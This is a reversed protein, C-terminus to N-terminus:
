GETNAKVIEDAKEMINNRLKQDLRFEEALKYAVKRYLQTKELDPLKQIFYELAELQERNPDKLLPKGRAASYLVVILTGVAFYLWHPIDLNLYAGFRAILLPRFVHIVLLGLSGILVGQFVSTMWMTLAVELFRRFLRTFESIQM